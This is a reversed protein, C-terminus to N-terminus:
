KRVFLQDRIEKEVDVRSWVYCEMQQVNGVGGGRRVGTLPGEFPPDYTRSM